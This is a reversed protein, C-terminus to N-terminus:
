NLQQLSREMFLFIWLFTFIWHLQPQPLWNKINILNLYFFTRFKTLVSWTTWSFLIKIHQKCKVPFSGKLSSNVRSDERCSHNIGLKTSISGTTRSFFNLIHVFNCVSPRCVVLFWILKWNLHTLLISIAFM